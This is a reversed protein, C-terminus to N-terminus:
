EKVSVIARSVPPLSMIQARTFLKHLVATLEDAEITAVNEDYVLIAFDYPGNFNTSLIRVNEYVRRRIRNRVVASKSVKKSVVVAARYGDPRTTKDFRLCFQGARASRARSYLKQISNRGHFRHTRGIM